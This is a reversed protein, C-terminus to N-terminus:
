YCIQSVINSENSRIHVSVHKWKNSVLKNRIAEFMPVDWSILNQYIEENKRQLTNVFTDHALLYVWPLNFFAFLDQIGHNEFRTRLNGLLAEHMGWVATYKALNLDQTYFM